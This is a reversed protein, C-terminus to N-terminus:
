YHIVKQVNVSMKSLIEAIKSGATGNGYLDDHAYKGHKLQSEIAHKILEEKPEVQIVNQGVLRATQRSGVNVVPTGIFAGERIGSSSNGILASAKNMLHIYIPTPLNDFTKLWPRQIKLVTTKIEDGGADSNPLLFITPLKLLELAALINRASEANQGFETTVPHHSVLLFPKSFDFDNMGTKESFYAKLEQVSDRKLEDKILDMRPCGVNFVVEPNEGMKIIRERADENAPFHIHSIKTLAHRISEDVTGSVEGGMTHAIPINMMLASMAVPIVDFRDGVVVLYDPKLVDLGHASEIMGKGASVAMAYPTTEEQLNKFTFATKFGDQNILKEVNGFKEEVASAGTLLQLELEPHSDIASMAAKISSYNARSGIYVCIKKKM